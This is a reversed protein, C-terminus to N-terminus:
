VSYLSVPLFSSRFLYIARVVLKVEELLTEPSTTSPRGNLSQKLAQTASLYDKQYRLYLEDM